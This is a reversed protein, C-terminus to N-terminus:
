VENGRKLELRPIWSTEREWEEPSIAYSVCSIGRKSTIFVGIDNPDIRFGNTLERAFLLAEQRNREIWEDRNRNPEEKKPLEKYIMLKDIVSSLFGRMSKISGAPMQTIEEWAKEFIEENCGEGFKRKMEERWGDKSDTPTRHPNSPPLSSPTRIYREEKKRREQEHPNPPPETPTRHDNRHPNQQKEFYINIDCVDSRLIIVKTGITTSGTPTGTPAKKRNRCTELIKIHARAVLVKLAHRYEDRTQFGAKKYDGIRAEGIELGDPHGSIRRARFAILNLLVYAKPQHEILFRTEESDILKIFRSSKKESM